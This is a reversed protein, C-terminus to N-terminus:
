RTTLCCLPVISSCDRGPLVRKMTLNGIPLAAQAGAESQAVGQLDAAFTEPLKVTEGGSADQQPARDGTGKAIQRVRAPM